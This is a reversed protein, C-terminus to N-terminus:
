VYMIQKTSNYYTRMITQKSLQVIYMYMYEALWNSVNFAM